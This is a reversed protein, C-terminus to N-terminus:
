GPRRHQSRPRGSWRDGALQAHVLGRHEVALGRHDLLVTTGLPRARRARGQSRRGNLTEQGIKPGGYGATPQYRWQNLVYRSALNAGTAESVPKTYEFEFGGPKARMALIDFANTSTPTLKQLGYQLKGAQGWNGGAGLGGVYLAGDPGQVVRTVGAELGQTM